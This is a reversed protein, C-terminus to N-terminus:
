WTSYYPGVKKLPKARILETGEQTSNKDEEGEQDAARNEGGLGTSGVWKASKREAEKGLYKWIAQGIGM